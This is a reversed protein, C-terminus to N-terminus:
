PDLNQASADPLEPVSAPQTIASLVPADDTGTIVFNLPQPASTVHGDSVQVSYGITLTDGQRLVDLNAANRDHTDGITQAGGNSLVRTAVTLKGTVLAATLASTQAATLSGGSWVLTPTGVISATFTDGVDLDSVPLTGTIPDLNQASADPLEPVSAPQTIASLVPADNTGTITITVDQTTLGGNNDAVQVTYTQTLTQGAALFEVAKDSVSFTWGVIGTSGGTADHALTPAFTGLYNNGDPTFTVTHKDTLDVDSFTIAGAANLNGSNDVNTHETVAGSQAISTIVPADNTGIVTVKVPQTSSAGNNDTVTVDYTITLKEGAALFDLADGAGFTFAISGSGSGTNDAVTASLAGALVADIGSPPTVGLPWSTSTVSTSATHHDTLDVDTFTLTGSTQVAQTTTHPGSADPALMPADNSGTITITVPQTLSAGTTDTVTVNYTITLTEGAALFDFTKDPASFTTAISGSTSITSDISVSTTLASALVAVNLVSPLTAGGSWTISALSASATSFNLHTFTFEGAPTTDFTASGTTHLLEIIAHAGSVDAALVPKIEVPLPKFTPVDIAGPNTATTITVALPAPGQNQLQSFNIPVLQQQAFETPTSSGGPAAGQQGLGLSLTALAAQQAGQLEAMRSSSNPLRTVSGAPDVVVTEGPDDAVIVRGDRTTIEFTGHPSDKYTITGDDLFADSRSAAQLERITSFALAALTLIGIGGDQAAGRIRAFPTDIRLGGAKAMKGAIFAFVGKTLSFLASNSTGDCVFENLAMRANNSLTFATGDIFTCGVAGYAGTEITDHRYVPDGVKVQAVVGRADMVTVLGTATQITGIAQPPPAGMVQTCGGVAGDDEPVDCTGRFVSGRGTSHPAM